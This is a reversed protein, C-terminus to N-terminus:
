AQDVNTFRARHCNSESRADAALRSIHNNSMETFDDRYSTFESRATSPQPLPATDDAPHFHENGPETAMCNGDDIVSRDDAMVLSPRQDREVSSVAGDLDSGRETAANENSHKGLYGESPMEDNHLPDDSAAVQRHDAMVSWTSDLREDAATRGLEEGAQGMDDSLLSVPSATNRVGDDVLERNNRLV